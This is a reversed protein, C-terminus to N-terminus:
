QDNRLVWRLSESVLDGPVAASVSAGAMGANLGVVVGASTALPGGSYGEELPASHEVLLVRGSPDRQLRTVSGRSFAPAPGQAGTALSSGLPFGVAYVDATETVDLSGGVTLPILPQDPTVRLIALDRAITELSVQGEDTTPPRPSCDLLTAELMRGAATGSNLFVGIRGVAGYNVVHANTAILGDETLVVGAGEGLWGDGQDTVVFVTGAMLRYRVEEPLAGGSGVAPPAAPEAPAPPPAAADSDAAPPPPEFDSLRSDVASMMEGVREGGPLQRGAWEDASRLARPAWFAGYAVTALFVLLPVQVLVQFAPVAVAWERRPERRIRSAARAAGAAHIAAAVNTLLPAVWWTLAIAVGAGVHGCYAQGAGPFLASLVAAAWPEPAPRPDDPMAPAVRGPLAYPDSAPGVAAEEPQAPPLSARPPEDSAASAGCHPCEAATPLLSRGCQSCRGGM